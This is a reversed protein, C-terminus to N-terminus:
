PTVDETEADSSRRKWISPPNKRQRNYKFRWIADRYECYNGLAALLKRVGRPNGPIEWRLSNDRKIGYFFNTLREWPGQYFITLLLNRSKTDSKVKVSGGDM